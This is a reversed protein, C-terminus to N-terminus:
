RINLMLSKQFRVFVDVLEGAEGLPYLQELLKEKNEFMGAWMTWYEKMKNMVNKERSMRTQIAQLLDYQFDWFRKDHDEGTDFHGAIKEPLFLDKFVGRGLMYHTLGPFKSKLDRYNEPSFIDGSYVVPNSSQDLCYAFKDLNIDGEYMQIGIRPHLVLYQLPYRNYVKMLAEFEDSSEYGLRTKVSFRINIKPIVYNLIDDIEDAYPLLGSGRKKRAISRVPCGLNWNMSHYGMDELTKAMTIFLEKGRGMVQPIINLGINNEPLLDQIHTLKVKKGKVLSVFPAVAIDIGKFHKSYTNRFVYNTFGQLPALFIM